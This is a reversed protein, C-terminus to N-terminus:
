RRPRSCLLGQLCRWSCSRGQSVQGLPRSCLEAYIQIGREGACCFEAPRFPARGSGASPVGLSHNVVELPLLHFISRADIEISASGGVIYPAHTPLLQVHMQRPVLCVQARVLPRLVGFANAIGHLLSDTHSVGCCGFAAMERAYCRQVPVRLFLFCRPQSRPIHVQGHPESGLM